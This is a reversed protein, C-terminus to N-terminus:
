LIIKTTESALLITRGLPNSGWVKQGYISINNNIIFMNSIITGM